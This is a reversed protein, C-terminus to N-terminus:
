QSVAITEGAKQLYPARSVSWSVLDARAGNRYVAKRLVGELIFGARELVKRSAANDALHFATVCDFGKEM